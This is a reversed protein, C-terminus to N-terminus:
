RLSSGCKGGKHQSISGGKFSTPNGVGVLSVLDDNYRSKVVEVELGEEVQKTRLM